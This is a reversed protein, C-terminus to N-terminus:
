IDDISFHELEQAFKKYRSSITTPSVNYEKAVSVQTIKTDELLLKSVFYDLTASYTEAKTIYPEYKRSYVHWFLIGFQILEEDAEKEHMHNIFIEAVKRHSVDVWDLEEHTPQLLDGLWEPYLENMPEVAADYSDLVDNIVTSNEADILVSLFMFQYTDIFPILTGIIYDGADVTEDIDHNTKYIENNFINEVLIYTKDAREISKIQFISSEANKWSVFAQQIKLNKLENKKRKIFIDLATQEGVMPEHIMLWSILLNAYLELNADEELMINMEIYNAVSLDIEEEYNEIVFNIFEDHLKKLRDELDMSRFPIVNSKGCCENYVKGSGCTCPNNRYENGM